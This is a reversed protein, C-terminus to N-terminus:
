RKLLFYDGEKIDSIPRYCNLDPLYVRHNDTLKIETGDELEILFWNDINEQIDHNIIKDFQIIEKDVDFSLVMGKYRTDCIEKITKEGDETILITNEDCCGHVKETVVVREGDILDNVYVNAHECDHSGIYPMDFTKVKGSLQTPIPPEYKTIGLDTSVDVGLEYTDFNPVLFRPIIIGSSIENRLRVAKVRDKNAGSLYKEFESKIDGTLISKEPAFVVEDGSNYLGKQVVVQYSGVKGLELSDANPHVFLEIKEKSVKWNSM